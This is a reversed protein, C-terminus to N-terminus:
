SFRVRVPSSLSVLIRSHQVSSPPLGKGNLRSIDKVSAFLFVDSSTLSEDIGHLRQKQQTEVNAIFGVLWECLVVVYKVTM